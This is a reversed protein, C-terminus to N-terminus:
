PHANYVKHEGHAPSMDSVYCASTYGHINFWTHNVFPLVITLAYRPMRLFGDDLKLGEMDKTLYASFFRHYHTDTYCGKPVQKKAFSLMDLARYIKPSLPIIIIKRSLKLM